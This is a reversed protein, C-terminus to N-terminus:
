RAGRGAMAGMTLVNMVAGDPLIMDGPRQGPKCPGMYRGELVSKSSSRGMFPPDFTSSIEVRYRSSFDGSMTGRSRIASSGFTCESEVTYGEDQKRIENKSCSSSAMGQGLKQMAADTDADICQQMSGTGQPMDASSTTIEWLGAKRLPFQQAYVPLASALTLAAGVLLASLKSCVM